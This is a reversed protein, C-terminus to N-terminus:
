HCRHNRCANDPYIEEPKSNSFVEVIDKVTTRDARFVQIGNDNIRELARKGPGNRGYDLGAPVCEM